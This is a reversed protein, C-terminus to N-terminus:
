CGFKGLRTKVNKGTFRVSNELKLEKALDKCNQLSGDKDPGVMCLEASPYKKKLEGLVEIAMTPNYLQDFARVYLLKPEFNVRQKFQYDKIDIINPIFETSYGKEEFASKLYNSPAVNKYSNKFILNSMKKSDELRSPLKGGHLIPIYKLKFIRSLQSTLLAYYFNKTSYTDILVYDVKKRYKVISFLMDLMRVLQNKKSSSIIVDYGEGKLLRSLLVITTTNKTASKINNGIYLIM